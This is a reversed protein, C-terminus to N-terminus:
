RSRAARRRRVADAAELEDMQLRAATLGSEFRPIWHHELARVRQRTVTLETEVAELASAAAAHRVAAQAADRYGAVTQALAAGGAVPRDAPECAQVVEPPEAYRVGMMTSWHPVVSMTTSEAALRFAEAGDLAATRALWRRAARDAAAWDRATRTARDRLRQRQATLMTLKRHLVDRGRRAVQLRHRLWLVGARGPPAGSPATM